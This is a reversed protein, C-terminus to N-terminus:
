EIKILIEGGFKKSTLAMLCDYGDFTFDQNFLNVTKPEGTLLDGYEKDLITISTIDSDISKNWIEMEKLITAKYDSNSLIAAKIKPDYVTKGLEDKDEDSLNESEKEFEEIFPKKIEEILEGQEKKLKDYEKGLGDEIEYLANESMISIQNDVKFGMKKYLPIIKCFIAITKLESLKLKM